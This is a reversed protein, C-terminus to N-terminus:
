TLQQAHRDFRLAINVERNNQDNSLKLQKIDEEKAPDGDSPKGCSLHEDLPV